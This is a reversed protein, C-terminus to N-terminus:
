KKRRLLYLLNSKLDKMINEYGKIFDDYESCGVLSILRIVAVFIDAITELIAIMILGIFIVLLFPASVTYKIISIIKFIIKSIRM